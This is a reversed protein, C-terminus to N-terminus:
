EKNSNGSRYRKLNLIFIAVWIPVCLINLVFSFVSHNYTQYIVDLVAKILYLVACLACLIVALPSPKNM